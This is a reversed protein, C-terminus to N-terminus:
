RTEISSHATKCDDPPHSQPLSAPAHTLTADPETEMSARAKVELIQTGKPLNGVSRVGTGAILQRALKRAHQASFASIMDGRGDPLLIFYDRKETM